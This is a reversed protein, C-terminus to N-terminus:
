LFARKKEPLMTEDYLIVNNEQPWAKGGDTSRQVLAVARGHYGQPGHRVDTVSEYDCPAHYHGVIIDEGGFYKFSVCRPHGCYWKKGYHIVSHQLDYIKAADRLGQVENNEANAHLQLWVAMLFMINLFSGTLLFGKKRMLGGLSNRDPMMEM